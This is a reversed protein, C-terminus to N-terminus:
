ASVALDQNASRRAASRQRECARCARHFVDRYPRLRTNEPTFPHGHACTDKAVNLAGACRSSPALANERRTMLELHEPRVCSRNSCAHEVTLDGPDTGTALAYAVRHAQFMQGRIIAYRYGLSRERGSFLWCGDPDSRDVLAEFRARDDESLAPIQLHPRAAM